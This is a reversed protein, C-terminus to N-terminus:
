AQDPQDQTIPPVAASLEAHAWAPYTSLLEVYHGFHADIVEQAAQHAGHLVLPPLWRMGCFQATQRFPPMFDEFPYRHPGNEQYTDAAGGTTVALLFGKGRLSTADKGYAWGAELVVDVWEKLLAPMGYWQIPHQFVILDAAELMAQEHAVNIHFDPYIEYLDNVTVNPLERAAAALAGNVHSTHPMPHAFLILIKPKGTM